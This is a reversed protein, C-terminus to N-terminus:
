VFKEKKNKTFLINWYWLVVVLGYSNFLVPNTQAFIFYLLLVVAEEKMQWIKWNRWDLSKRSIKPILMMVWIMTGLPIGFYRFHDMITIETHALEYGTGASYYITALGEGLLANKMELQKFYSIMHGVKVFNSREEMSFFTSFNFLYIVAAIGAIGLVGAVIMQKKRDLALWILICLSAPVLLMLTRSGTTFTLMLALVVFALNWWKRNRLFDIFLIDTLVLMFPTSGLYIQMGSGKEGFFARRTMLGSGLEHLTDGITRLLRTDLSHAINNVFAPVSFEMVNMAYVVYLAFCLIYVKAVIKLIANMDVDFENIPYILVFLGTVLLFQQALEMVANNMAGRIFGYVFILIIFVPALTIKLFEFKKEKKWFLIYAGYILLLAVFLIKNYGALPILMSLLIYITLLVTYVSKLYIM